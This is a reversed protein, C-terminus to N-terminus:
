HLHLRQGGDGDRRERDVVHALGHLARHADLTHAQHRLGASARAVVAGLLLAPRGGSAAARARPSARSPAASSPPRSVGGASRASPGATAASWRSGRWSPVRTTSPASGRGTTSACSGPATSPCSWTSSTASPIPCRAGGQGCGIAGATYRAHYRSPLC